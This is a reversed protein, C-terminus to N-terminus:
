ADPLEQTHIDLHVDELPHVLNLFPALAPDEQKRDFQRRLDAMGLADPDCFVCEVRQSCSITTPHPPFVGAEIGAVIMGVTEGVRTIVDPTVSYGIREFAGKTSIFWCEARVDANPTGRLMRAALGYVALQLKRGQADPNVESLGKYDDSKGTKYDLVHITMDADVDVRVALGRFDVSRGDPLHLSVPGLESDRFGFALEAAVPWTGFKIRHESDAQLFRELDAIIRKKDRQWFVPRGTLGHAEYYDCVGEAIEAMRVRDSESWPQPPDLQDAPQRALVESIFEELAKHVLSGRDRPSIQLQDEPNEVEDVDLVNRLLYAYPCVAWSELRTASTLREAPSPVALGALNGDFRTFRDSRRATVVEAGAQLGADGVADLSSSDLRGTGQAMLSRLRHEQQTAPFDMRRLGADFSAVHKLWEREAGLLQDSWWREGAIASAIQLVWRSPVREINRRLDGRPVCLVQNSASALAALLQRHQREVRESRLPLEGGTAEREHDPLLSDDHTPAPCLGEALGLVVVLDLDLGVGMGASGVL